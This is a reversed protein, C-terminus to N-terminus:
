NGSSGIGGTRKDSLVVDNEVTLFPIIVGQAIRDGTKIIQKEEGYNYLAIIINGETDPNNYYTSDIVGTGNALVLNRKIGISSRVYLMLVDRDLMKCKINTPIKIIENPNIVTTITSYFDYGASGDDARTPIIGNDYLSIKEFCREM